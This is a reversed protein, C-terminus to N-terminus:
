IYQYSSLYLDICNVHFSFRFFTYLFFKITAYVRRPGGWIGIILFMPILMAEFFVYFLIADTACFVGIMLGELLLFAVLYNKIQQKVNTWSAIVVLLTMFATLVILTVSIADVGLAYYIDFPAIWSQKEVFQMQAQSTSNSLLKLSALLEVISVVLAFWKVSEGDRGLLMMVIAAVIPMWILFSLIPIDMPM